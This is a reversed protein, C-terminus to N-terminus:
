GCAWPSPRWSISLMFILLLLLTPRFTVRYWLMILLLLVLSVLFDLFGGLIAAAPVILRPFYVKSVMNAAAVLSNSSDSLASAFFQWPLLAAFTMVPYPAGNSSFKAMRGIVASFIVMTLFPQLLAWAVGLLTQKYRILIDRWALFLFLERYHWIESLNLGVLGTHARIVRLREAGASAESPSPAPSTLDTTM